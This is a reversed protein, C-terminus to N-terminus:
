WPQTWRATWSGSWFVGLLGRTLRRCPGKSHSVLHQNTEDLAADVEDMLFLSTAAGAMAAQMCCTSPCLPPEATSSSVALHRRGGDAGGGCILSPSLPALAVVSGISSVFSATGVSVVFTLSVMTRQGGSLADLGSRWGGGPGGSAEEGGDDGMADESEGAQRDPTACEGGGGSGGRHAFELRVGEHM